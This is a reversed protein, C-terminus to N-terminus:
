FIFGLEKASPARYGRGASARVIVAKDPKYSAALRPAIATGYKTHYEARVGPLVTLQEALKWSLQAYSAATGLSVPTVQPLTNSTVGTSTSSTNTVFQEFHEAEFRSGFVWTRKGDAITVVPEFSQMRDTRDHRESVPSGRFDMSTYNDVHQHGLT